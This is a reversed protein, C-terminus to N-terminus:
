RRTNVIWSDIVEIIDEAFQEFCQESCGVAVSYILSDDPNTVSAFAVIGNEQTAMDEFRVVRRIGVYDNGFDFDTDINPGRNTVTYFEPWLILTELTARSLLDRETPSVNRVVFAGVPYRVLSVPQELNTVNRGVRGDFAAVSIIPLTDVFSTVFPLDQLTLEDAIYINWESPVEFLALDDPDKYETRDSRAGGCAVSVMVFLTAAAVIRGVGPNKWAITRM